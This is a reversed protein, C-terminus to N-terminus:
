PLGELRLEEIGVQQPAAELRHIHRLSPEIVAIPMQTPPTSGKLLSGDSGSSAQM